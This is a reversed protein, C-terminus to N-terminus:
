ADSFTARLAALEVRLHAAAVPTMEDLMGGGSQAPAVDPDPILAVLIDIQAQVLVTNGLAAPIVTPVYAGIPLIGTLVGM